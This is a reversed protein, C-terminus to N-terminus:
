YSSPLSEGYPHFYNKIAAQYAKEMHTFTFIQIETTISYQCGSYLKHFHWM